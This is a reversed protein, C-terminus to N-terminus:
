LLDEWKDFAFPIGYRDCLEKIVSEQSLKEADWMSLEGSFARSYFAPAIKSDIHYYMKEIKELSSVDMHWQEPAQIRYVGESTVVRMEALKGYRLMNIDASSFCTGDPHNHTLVGAQMKRIQSNSFTIHDAYGGKEFLQEGNPGFLYSVEKTLQITSQEVSFFTQQKEADWSRTGIADNWKVTTYNVDGGSDQKKNKGNKRKGDANSGSAISRNAIDRDNKRAAARAKAAESRNWKAVSIRDTQKTLGNEKCNADYAANQKRLLAATRQYRETDGAAEYGMLRRKTDRIRREM